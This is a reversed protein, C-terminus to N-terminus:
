VRKAQTQNRANELDRYVPMVWEEAADMLVQNAEQQKSDNDPVFSFGPNKADSRASNRMSILESADWSINFHKAISTWAAKPLESYNVLLGNGLAQHKLAAHLICGLVHACYAETTMLSTQDQTLGFMEPELMGAVMHLGRRRKHSVLVELPHRYIFVWPVDPFAAKILPLELMHWADFKIFFRAEEAHRRQSFVSVLSKLIETRRAEDAFARGRYHSRIITDLPDAEAIVINRGCSSLMQTLLTSGCRSSHFIFGTPKMGPQLGHLERLADLSTQRCFLQNFPQRLLHAITEEFFPEVFRKEGLRCWHVLSDEGKQEIRVPIWELLEHARIKDDM